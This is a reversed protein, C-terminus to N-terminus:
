EPAGGRTEGTANPTFLQTGEMKYDRILNQGEKSTLFQVFDGAGKTNLKIGPHKDPNVVEVGYQNFLSKDGEVLIELQFGKRMVVYTARDSLTYGQKQNAITLTEGMGQGTEVYWPRGKPDIGAAKWLELEKKHTGSDDARSIFTAGAAAIKKFADVGSKDGKIGAPDATPGVIIFDNYMVQVRELGFGQKVFEEESAKAHVLVVDADGKEGLKLAEGTGVALTKVTHNYEKEFKPLLYDLLGSDQTSTTTALILATPKGSGCGSVLAASVIIATLLLITMLRRVNM